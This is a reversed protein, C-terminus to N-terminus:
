VPKTLFTEPYQASLTTQATQAQSKESFIGLVTSGSGSMSSGLAGFSRMAHKIEEITEKKEPPLVAEFVNFMRSAVGELDGSELATIMASTDPRTKIDNVKILPFLQPTEVSFQPKCLLIYCSPLAPQTTLVEGMGEALATKGLLCYPVDAGVEMAIESLKEPSFPTNERSNLLKLMTAGDSSGGALGACLPINKELDVLLPPIPRQLHHYFRQAAKSLLNNEDLPIDNKECRIHIGPKEGQNLTIEDYLDVSQMLMKMQHYGNEYKGVIDLSLNIKAFAKM